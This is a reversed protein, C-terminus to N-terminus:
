RVRARVLRKNLDPLADSSSAASQIYEVDVIVWGGLAIAFRGQFKVEEHREIKVPEDKGMAGVLGVV